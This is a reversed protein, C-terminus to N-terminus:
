YARVLILTSYFRRTEGSLGVAQTGHDANGTGLLDQKPTTDMHGPHSLATWRLPRAQPRRPRPELVTSAARELPALGLPCYCRRIPRQSRATEAMPFAKGLRPPRRLEGQPAPHLRGRARTSSPLSAQSRAHGWLAARSLVSGARAAGPETAAVPTTVPSPPSSTGRLTAYLM